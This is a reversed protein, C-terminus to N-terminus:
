KKVKVKKVLSWKGYVKKKDNMKYARIRIFYTKKKKLKRLTVSTSKVTKKKAKKFKKNIAYQIQYGLSNSVKKWTVKVKCKKQNKAVVGKIKTLSTMKANNKGANVTQSSQNGKTPVQSKVSSKPTNAPQNDPNPKLSPQSGPSPNIESNGSEGNSVVTCTAKVGGCSATITTTGKGVATVKGTQDVSAIGEDDSKWTTSGDADSPYYGANLQYSDGIANLEISTKNLYISKLPITVTVKCAATKEGAKATIVAEGASIAEINGTKDVKAIKEDSSSWIVEDTSDMPNLGATLQYKENRGLTLETESLTIKETAIQQAVFAIDNEKAYQEAYSGAVGYITMKDPYSFASDSISTTAKPITIKRLKTCNKFANDEITEVQYPLIIFELSSCGRFAENPIKKIGTSLVIQNLSECDYFASKGISVVNNQMNVNILSDCNYFAEVGIKQVTKPLVIEQLEYCNGFAGDGIFTLGELFEIQKLNKCSCFVNSNLSNLKNNLKVNELLDCHYFAKEGVSEVNEPLVIKSLNDCNEFANNGIKKLQSNDEFKVKQLNTCGCFAEEAIVTITKPITIVELASCNKFIKWDLEKRNSNITIEKLSSCYEFPGTTSGETGWWDSEMKVKEPINIAKLSSCYAFTGYGITKIEDPLAIEELSKDGWFAYNDIKKLSTPLNIDTLKGCGRFSNGQITVLRKPLQVSVLNTCNQFSSENIVKVNSPIVVKRIGTCGSFLKSPIETTNESFEVETLLSDGVFPGEDRADQGWWNAGIEVDEPLVVTKLNGCYGFAEWGIKEIKDPFDITTLANCNRFAYNDIKNIRAPFTVKKLNTCERFASANIVNITEPLQLEEVGTCGWFLREPIETIDQEFSINKLSSTEWFPGNDHANQGWWNAGIKELTKPIFISELSECYAFVEWGLSELKTSMKVLNLNSCNRFAYNYIHKINDPLEIEKLVSCERFLSSEIVTYKANNPLYAYGLSTCGYFASNGISEVSDPISVSLLSTCGEFASEGISTVSDPILVQMMTKNNLFAQKGIATVTDPIEVFPQWGTYKVLVGNEIIFNASDDYFVDDGDGYISAYNDARYITIGGNSSGYGYTGKALESYSREWENIGCGGPACGNVAANCDYVTIGKSTLGTFIMTHQGSSATTSAQIVDGIKAQAFLQQVQAATFNGTLQGVKNVGNNQQYQYCANPYYNAPM